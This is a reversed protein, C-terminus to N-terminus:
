SNVTLLLGCIALIAVIVIAVIVVRPIPKSKEYGKVYASDEVHDPLDETLKSEGDGESTRAMKERLEAALKEQLESRKGTDNVFLAM